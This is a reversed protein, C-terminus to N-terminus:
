FLETICTLRNKLVTIEDSGISIFAKTNDISHIHVLQADDTFNDLIARKMTILKKTQNIVVNCLYLFYILSDFIFPYKKLNNKISFINFSNHEWIKLTIKLKTLLM